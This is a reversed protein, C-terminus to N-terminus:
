PQGGALWSESFVLHRVGQQRWGYALHIRGDRDLLLSPESFDADAASEIIRPAQWISGDANGTWVGLTGRGAATNGALLLRGSALRLLALPTGPQVIEPMAAAQWHQGGDSSRAARVRQLQADGLLALAHQPDISVVAPSPSGSDLQMRTKDLIRGDTDLRLWEGHGSFMTQSAPLGLGGDALVIPPNRLRMSANGLPSTQLRALPQWNKGEDSSSTHIISHGGVGSASFWLHLTNDHAFLVPDSVHRIHAFISGATEESTTVPYPESWAGNNMASFWIVDHRRPADALALWAIAIRGDALLALSPTGIIGGVGPLMNHQLFPPQTSEITAPPPAFATPPSLPARWFAAGLALVFATAALWHLSKPSLKRFIFSAEQMGPNYLWLPTQTASAPQQIL